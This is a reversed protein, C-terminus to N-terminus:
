SADLTIKYRIRIRHIYLCSIPFRGLQAHVWSSRVLLKSSYIEPGSLPLGFWSGISRDFGPWMSIADLDPLAAGLSATLLILSKQRFGKGFSAVVTGIALGSLTHSLIDVQKIRYNLRGCYKKWKRVRQWNM